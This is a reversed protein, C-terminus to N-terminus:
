TKPLSIGCQIMDDSKIVMTVTYNHTIQIILGSKTYQSKSPTIENLGEVVRSFSETGVRPSGSTGLQGTPFTLNLRPRRLGRGTKRTVLSIELLVWCTLLVQGCDV